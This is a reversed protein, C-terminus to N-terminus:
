YLRNPAKNSKGHSNGACFLPSVDRIAIPGTEYECRDRFYKWKSTEVTREIHVKMINVIRKHACCVLQGFSTFLARLQCVACM